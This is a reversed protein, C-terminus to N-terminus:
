QESPKGNRLTARVDERSMEIFEAISDPVPSFLLADDNPAIVKEFNTLIVDPRPHTLAIALALEKAVQGSRMAEMLGQSQLNLAQQLEAIQQQLKEIEEEDASM